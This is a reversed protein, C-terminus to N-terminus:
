NKPEQLVLRVRLGLFFDIVFDPFQLMRNERDYSIRLYAHSWLWLLSSYNRSKQHFKKGGPNKLTDVTVLVLSFPIPFSALVSPFLWSPSGLELPM